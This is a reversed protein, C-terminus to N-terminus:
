PYTFMTWLRCNSRLGLECKYTRWSTETETSASYVILDFVVLFPEVDLAAGDKTTERVVVGATGWGGDAGVPFM